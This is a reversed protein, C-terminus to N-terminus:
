RGAIYERGRAEVETKAADFRDKLLSKMKPHANALNLMAIVNKEPTIAIIAREVPDPLKEDEITGPAVAKPAIPQQPSPPQAGVVGTSSVIVAVLLLIAAGETKTVFMAHFVGEM